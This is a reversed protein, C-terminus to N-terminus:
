SPVDDRLKGHKVAWTYAHTEGTLHRGRQTTLDHDHNEAHRQLLHMETASGKNEAPRLEWYVILTKRKTALHTKTKITKSNDTVM